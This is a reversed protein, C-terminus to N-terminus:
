RCVHISELVWGGSTKALRIHLYRTCVDHGGLHLINEDEPFSTIRGGDLFISELTDTAEIEQLITFIREKWFDSTEQSFATYLMHPDNQQLCTRMFEIVQKPNPFLPQTQMNM